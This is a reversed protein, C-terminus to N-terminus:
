EMDDDFDKYQEDDQIDANDFDLNHGSGTLSIMDDADM